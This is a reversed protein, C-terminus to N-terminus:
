HNWIHITSADILTVSLTYGDPRANSIGEAKSRIALNGQSNPDGFISIYLREIKGNQIRRLVHEDNPALSHGIIFLSGGKTDCCGQFSRLGKSLYASKNIKEMKEDTSSESVFLPYRDDDLSQKIQDMLPQNGSREWCLKAIEPGREYLHLAGHLFTISQSKNAASFQDWAVYSADVDDEPSRFGDDNNLIQSYDKTAQGTAWEFDFEDHLIAWYLLLDYNLTFIKGALKGRPMGIFQALFARCNKYQESTIDSPRSPHNGAVADVLINKLKEAHVNMLSADYGYLPALASAAKLAEMVLEFDTSKLAEFADGLPSHDDFLGKEKAANFLSYYSFCKPFLSISFGNGLLLYRKCNATEELAQAFTIM